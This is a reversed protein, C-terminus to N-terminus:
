DVVGVVQRQPRQRVVGERLARQRVPLLEHDATGRERHQMGRPVRGSGDAEVRGVEPRDALAVVADAEIRLVRRAMALSGGATSDQAM